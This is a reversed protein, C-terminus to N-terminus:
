WKKVFNWAKSTIVDAKEYNLVLLATFISIGGSILVNLDIKSTKKKLVEEVKGLQEIDSEMIIDGSVLNEQWSELKKRTRRNM